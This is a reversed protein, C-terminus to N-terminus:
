RFCNDYTTYSLDNDCLPCVATNHAIYPHLSQGNRFVGHCTSCTRKSFDQWIIGAGIVTFILCMSLTFLNTESFTLACWAFYLLGEFTRSLLIDRTM